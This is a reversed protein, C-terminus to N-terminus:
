GRRPSALTVPALHGWATKPSQVGSDSFGPNVRGLPGAGLVGAQGGGGERHPRGKFLDLPSAQPCVRQNSWKQSAQEWQNKWVQLVEQKCFQRTVGPSEQSPVKSSQKTPNRLLCIARSVCCAGSLHGHRQSARRVKRVTQTSPRSSTCTPPSPRPICAVHQGWTPCVALCDSSAQKKGKKHQLSFFLSHLETSQFACPTPLSLGCRQGSVELCQLSIFLSAESAPLM